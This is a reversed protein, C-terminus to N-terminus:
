KWSPDYRDPPKSVRSSRARSPQEQETPDASNEVQTEESEPLRILHQRNRRYSGATTEVIHSRPATEEVVTGSSDRDPVWVADGPELRPLDRARHRQDFNRKQREKLHKEKEELQSPAVVKPRRWERTVPLTTRLNRSMLLQAPSYGNELPTTRYALLALYPDGSKRLLGKVTKVAREAEGNGQPYLPSSPVHEFGYERAFTAYLDASFQPGNDSVVIEPIGHRAFISRTHNIVEPATQKQLRAVEIWRSYYDVVLLYTSKNWEFLDTGVKQWPLQPLQSPILPEPRLPSHKLCEPCSKVTEELQRSLGPWWVSHKARERCKTIGQHAAHIKDLMEVRLSAPIVVRSGRMLLGKEVTLEASVHRYPKLVGPTAGREPWGNQCYVKLQRIIPDEEQHQRIEEMRRETAPISSFTADVYAEVETELSDQVSRGPEPARSLTDAVVLNKGQVHSITFHYRLMRMRFRQVRLPLEDLRKAGLLPVLPKHDTEVHFELGVLYDAFRDCAWTIALAEKEIQAYRQETPSMSRSAYAVPRQEGNDQEQLLVAGLGFSSADASVTTPRCPDFLALVPSRSIERRVDDFACRQAEDWCWESDKALLDRLPKTTNALNPSFKGLQNTMGLLRRIDGVCTPTKFNAIASVKDPDPRVGTRDVVQGLFKVQEQAFICKKRNLTVGAEELRRLVILLRQDHEEKSKGHVLIDDMLCVVGTVGQLIESMRRQFHEPASTIGFPLRNFCFRGFPTIFTTLLASEQALPIQWFGSNADIKSFVQAGALQALAQEVAPLPHHERRVSENLRTLDVCIRVSGDAKPVVVMGSCWETPERVRSVVGMQEMRELEAKVKPLLPIAIRHPTSLAYPTADDRLVIKYEEELRGLGGFLKPFEKVVDTETQVANVRQVLGLAEIAPRGLLSRNLKKVAYVEETAERDHYKLAATFQGEVQLTKCGAGSLTKTPPKLAVGPISRLVSRPIITVDAGTDIKFKVPRGNVLLTVSWPNSM